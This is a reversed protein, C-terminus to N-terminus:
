DKDFKEFIWYFVSFIWFGGLVVAGIPLTVLFVRLMFGM